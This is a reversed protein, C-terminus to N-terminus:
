ALYLSTGRCFLPLMNHHRILQENILTTPLSNVEICDINMMPLGFSHAATNAIQQSSLINNKVLYQVLSIKETIARKYFEMAQPKELLKELVFLQGIGQLKFPENGLMIKSQSTTLGNLLIQKM